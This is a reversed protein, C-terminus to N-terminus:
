LNIAFSFPKLDKRAAPGPKLWDFKDVFARVREPTPMYYHSGRKRAFTLESDNVYVDWCGADKLALAVPCM